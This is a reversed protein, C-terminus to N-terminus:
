ECLKLSQVVPDGDNKETVEIIVNKDMLGANVRHEVETAPEHLVNPIELVDDIRSKFIVFSKADEDKQVIIEAKYDDIAFNYEQACSSCVNSSDTLKKCCNPCSKYFYFQTVGLCRGEIVDDAVSINAFVDVDDNEEHVSTNQMTSLYKKEQNPPYNEVKVNRIQYVKNVEFLEIKKNWASLFNKVGDKDKITLRTVKSGTHITKPIGVHVIKVLLSPVIDGPCFTAAMKLSTFKNKKEDDSSPTEPFEVADFPACPIVTSKSDLFVTGERPSVTPFVVRVFSGQCLHKRGKTFNDMAIIKGTSSEDAILHSDQSLQRGIAVRLICKKPKNFYSALLLSAM